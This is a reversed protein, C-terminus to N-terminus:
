TEKTQLQWQILFENSTICWAPTQSASQPSNKIPNKGVRALNQWNLTELCPRPPLALFHSPRHLTSCPIQPLKVHITPLTTSLSQQPHLLHRPLPHGCRHRSKEVWRVVEPSRPPKENEEDEEHAGCVKEPIAVVKDCM